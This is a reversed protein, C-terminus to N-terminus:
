PWYRAVAMHSLGGSTISELVVVKGDDDIAVAAVDCSDGQSVLLTGANAFTSDLAGKADFRAVLCQHTSDGSFGGIVLKGSQPDRAIARAASTVSGSLAALGGAGFSADLQGSPSIRMVLARANDDSAVAIAGDPQLLASAAGFTGTGLPVTATQQLGGSTDYHLAVVDTTGNQQFGVAYLSGDPAVLLSRAGASPKGLTTVVVGGDGFSPDLHSTIPSTAAESASDSADDPAADADAGAEPGPLPVQTYRALAIASADGASGAAVLTGGPEVAGAYAIDDGLSIATTVAYTPDLGGAPLLRVATFNAKTDRVDGVAFIQGNPLTALSFLEGPATTVAFTSDVAGASTLRLVKMAQATEVHTGGVLVGSQLAILARAFDQGASPALDAVGGSGFSTDLTGSAGAVHVLLPTSASASQTTASVTLIADGQNFTSPAHVVLTGQTQTAAITLADATFGADSDAKVTVDGDGGPGRALAVAITKADGPHVWIEAPTLAIVLPTPTVDICADCANSDDGNCRVLAALAGLAAIAILTARRM